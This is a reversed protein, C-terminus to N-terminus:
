VVQGQRLSPARDEVAPQMRGISERWPGLVERGESEAPINMSEFMRSLNIGNRRGPKAWGVVLASGCHQMGNLAAIAAEGHAESEMEVLGTGTIDATGLQNTVEASRMAGHHAFLRELEDQRVTHSLNEVHLKRPM